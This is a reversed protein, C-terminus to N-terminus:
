PRAAMSLRSYAGAVALDTGRARRCPAGLQHRGYHGCGPLRVVCGHEEPGQLDPIGANRTLYVEMGAYFLSAYSEVQLGSKSVNLSTSMQEPYRSNVPPTGEGANGIISYALQDLKALGAASAGAALLRAVAPATAQAPEHSARWAPHGFSSVRGAVAFMDKVAVTVGDLPGSGTAALGASDPVWCHVSEASDPVGVGM